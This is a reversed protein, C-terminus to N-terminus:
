CILRKHNRLLIQQEKNETLLGRQNIKHSPISNKHHPSESKYRTAILNM